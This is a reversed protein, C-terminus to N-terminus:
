SLTENNQYLVHLFIFKTTRFRGGYHVVIRAVILVVVVVIVVVVVVIVVVGVVVVIVVVAVVVVVGVVIVVVVVVVVVISSSSCSSSCSSSSDSSSSSSSSLFTGHYRTHHKCQSIVTAGSLHGLHSRCFEPFQCQVGFRNGTRYAPHVSTRSRLRPCHHFLPRIALPSESFLFLPVCSCSHLRGERLCTLPGSERSSVGRSLVCIRPLLSQSYM